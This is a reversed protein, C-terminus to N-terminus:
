EVAFSVTRFSSAQVEIEQTTRNQAQESASRGCSWLSILINSLQVKSRKTPWNHYSVWAFTQRAKGQRLLLLSRCIMNIM